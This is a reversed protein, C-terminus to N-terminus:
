QLIKEFESMALKWEGDPGPTLDDEIVVEEAAFDLSVNFRNFNFKQLVRGVLKGERMAAVLQQRAYADGDESLFESLVKQNM